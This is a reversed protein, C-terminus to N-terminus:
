KFGTGSFRCVRLAPQMIWISACGLIETIARGILKLKHVRSDINASPWSRIGSELTMTDIQREEDPPQGGPIRKATMM